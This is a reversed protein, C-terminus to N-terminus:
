YPCNVASSKSWQVWQGFLFRAPGNLKLLSESLRASGPFVNRRECSTCVILNPLRCLVGSLLKHSLGWIAVSQSTAVLVVGNVKSTQRCFAVYISASIIVSWRLSLINENAMKPCFIRAESPLKCRKYASVRHFRPVNKAACLTYTSACNELRRGITQGFIHIKKM